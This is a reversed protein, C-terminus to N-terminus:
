RITEQLTHFSKYHVRITCDGNSQTSYRLQFRGFKPLFVRPPAYMSKPMNCLFHPIAGINPDFIRKLLFLCINTSIFLTGKHFQDPFSDRIADYLFYAISRPGQSRIDLPHKPPRNIRKKLAAFSKFRIRKGGEFLIKKDLLADKDYWYQEEEVYKAYFWLERMAYEKLQFSGFGPFSLTHGLRLFISLAGNKPHFVESVFSQVWEKNLEVVNSQNERRIKDRLYRALRGQNITSPESGCVGNIYLNQAGKIMTITQMVEFEDYHSHSDIVKMTPCSLAQMVTNPLADLSSRFIIKELASNDFLLDPIPDQQVILETCQNKQHACESFQFLVGMAWMAVYENKNWESFFDKLYDLNSVRELDLTGYSALSTCFGSLSEIKKHWVDLIKVVVNIDGCQPAFRLLTPVSTEEEWIWSLAKEEMRSDFEIFDIPTKRLWSSDISLHEWASVYLKSLPSSYGLSHPLTHLSNLSLSLTELQTLQAIEAPLTKLEYRDLSLEKLGKLAFIRRLKDQDQSGLPPIKYLSGALLVHELPLSFMSEPLDKLQIGRISLHRLKPFHTCLDPPILLKQTDYLSWCNLHLSEIWTCQTCLNLYYWWDKENSAIDIALESITRIEFINEPYDSDSARRKNIQLSDFRQIKGETQPHRALEAMIWYTLYRNLYSHIDWFQIHEKKELEPAFSYLLLLAGEAGLNLDVFLQRGQRSYEAQPHKILNALKQIKEKM